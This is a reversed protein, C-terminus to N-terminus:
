WEKWQIFPRGKREVTWKTKDDKKLNWEAHTEGDIAGDFSHNLWVNWQIFPTEMREVALTNKSTGRSMHKVTLPGM